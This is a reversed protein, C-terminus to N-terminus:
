SFTTLSAKESVSLVKDLNLIIIMREEFNAIATIFNTDANLAIAPPPEMINIPIRLVENVSDVVFGLTSGELDIVMIRTTSDHEKKPIGMRTRLDIIPIVKGRLNIVGEVYNPSNPVQTITVMRNIEQVRLIDVGYQEEGINFSVIHMIKEATTINEEKM